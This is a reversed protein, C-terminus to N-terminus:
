IKISSNCLQNDSIVPKAPTEKWGFLPACPSYVPKITIRWYWKLLPSECLFIAKIGEEAWPVLGALATIAPM